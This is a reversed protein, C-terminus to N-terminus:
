IAGLSNNQFPNPEELRRIDIAVHRSLFGLDHKEYFKKENTYYKIALDFCKKRKSFTNLGIYILHSAIWYNSYQMPKIQPFEKLLEDKELKNIEKKILQFSEVNIVELPTDFRIKNISELNNINIFSKLDPDFKMVEGISIFYLTKLGRFLSSPRQKSFVNIEDAIERTKEMNILSFLPEINGNPYFFSTIDGLEKRSYMLEVLKEQLYPMDIPYFLNYLKNSHKLGTLISNLPGRAKYDLLDTIIEINELGHASIIELYKKKRNEDNVIITFGTNFKKFLNIANILLPVNGWKEDKLLAKDFNKMEEKFRKSEGGALLFMHLDKM